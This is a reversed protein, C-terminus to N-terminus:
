GQWTIYPRVTDTSAEGTSCVFYGDSFVTREKWFYRLM